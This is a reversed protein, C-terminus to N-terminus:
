FKRVFIERSGESLHNDFELDRLTLVLFKDLFHIQSEKIRHLLM